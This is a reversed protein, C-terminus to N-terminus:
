EIALDVRFTVSVKLLALFVLRSFTLNNMKKREKKKRKEKRVLMARFSYLM